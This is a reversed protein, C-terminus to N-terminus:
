SARLYASARVLRDPDDQFYGLGLNCRVCLLGRVRGTAHDHDVHWSTSNGGPETAPCIACRQGQSQLMAAYENLGIGYLRRLLKERHGDSRNHERAAKRRAARATPNNALREALYSSECDRCYGKRRSEGRSSRRGFFSVHRM